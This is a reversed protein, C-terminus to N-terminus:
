NILTEFKVAPEAIILEDTMGYKTFINNARKIFNNAQKNNIMLGGEKFDPELALNRFVYASALEIEEYDAESYTVTGDIGNDTLVKEILLTREIPILSTLAEKKTM